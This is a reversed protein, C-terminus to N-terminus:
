VDKHDVYGLVYAERWIDAARMVADVAAITRGFDGRIDVNRQFIREIASALEENVVRTADDVSQPIKTLRLVAVRNKIPAYQM